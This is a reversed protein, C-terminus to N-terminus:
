NMLTLNKTARAAALFRLHLVSSSAPLLPFVFPSRCRWIAPTRQQQRKWRRRLPLISSSIFGAGALLDALGRQIGRAFSSSPASSSYYRRAQLKPVEASAEGDVPSTVDAAAGGRLLLIGQGVAGPMKTEEPRSPVRLLNRVCYSFCSCLGCFYFYYSYYRCCSWYRGWPAVRTDLSPLASRRRISAREVAGFGDGAAARRFNGGRTVDDDGEWGRESNDVDDDLEPVGEFYDNCIEDSNSDLM